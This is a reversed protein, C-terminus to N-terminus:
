SSLSQPTAEVLKLEYLGNRLSGQLLPRKTKQDKIVCGLSSFEAYANNDKTFKSISLLNKTIAPVCLVQNLHLDTYPQYHSKVKAAVLMHLQLSIV